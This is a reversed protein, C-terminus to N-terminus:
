SPLPAMGEILGKVRGGTDEGAIAKLLDENDPEEALTVQPILPRADMLRTPENKTETTMRIWTFKFTGNEMQKIYPFVVMVYPQAGDKFVWQGMAARDEKYWQQAKDFLASEMRRREADNYKTPSVILEYVQKPIWNEVSNRSVRVVGRIVKTHQYRAARKLLGQADRLLYTAEEEKVVNEKASEKESPFLLDSYTVDKTTGLWDGNAKSIYIRRSELPQIKAQEEATFEPKEALDTPVKFPHPKPFVVTPQVKVEKVEVALDDVVM